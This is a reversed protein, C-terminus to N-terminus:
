KPDIDERRVIQEVYARSTQAIRAWQDAEFGLAIYKSTLWEIEDAKGALYFGWSFLSISEDPDKALAAEGSAMKANATDRLRRVIDGNLAETLPDADDHVM